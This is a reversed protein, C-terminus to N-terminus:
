KGILVRQCCFFRGLKHSMCCMMWYNVALAYAWFDCSFLNQEEGPEQHPEQGSGKM